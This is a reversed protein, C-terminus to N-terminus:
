SIMLGALGNEMHGSPVEENLLDLGIRNSIAM